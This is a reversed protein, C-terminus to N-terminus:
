FLEEPKAHCCAMGINFGNHQTTTAAAIFYVFRSLVRINLSEMVQARTNVRQPPPTLGRRNPIM